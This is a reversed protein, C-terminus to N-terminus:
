GGLEALHSRIHRTWNGVTQVASAMEGTARQMVIVNPDPLALFRAQLTQQSAALHALQEELPTDRYQEVAKGNIEPQPGVPRPQLEGRAAAELAGIVFDHWFLLHALVERPGWEETQSAPADAARFYAIADQVAADLAHAEAQTDTM